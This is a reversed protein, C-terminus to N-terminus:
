LRHEVRTGDVTLSDSDNTAPTRERRDGLLLANSNGTLMRKIVPLGRVGETLGIGNGM